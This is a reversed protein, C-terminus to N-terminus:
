FVVADCFEKLRRVIPLVQPGYDAELSEGTANLTVIIPRKDATRREIVGWLALEQADTFRGRFVDDLFLVDVAVLSDMWASATEIDRFARGVEVFWAFGDFPWISRGEDYLRKLLLWAARTKGRGSPGHIVLGREQWRWGMVRRAAGQLPLQSFVTERYREHRCIETWPVRAPSRPAFQREYEARRKAAEAVELPDPTRPTFPVEGRIVAGIDLSPARVSEEYTEKEESM